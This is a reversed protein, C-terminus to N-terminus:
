SAQAAVRALGELWLQHQTHMRGPMVLAGLRALIGYQTEETLVDCGAATPAIAWAHYAEVGLGRALWAIREGAVFEVVETDLDVGFSRWRFRSNAALESAGGAIATNSANNYFKPWDPVRVLAKWVAAAPAAIALSNRVHVPAVAPDFRPPWHLTLMMARSVLRAADM